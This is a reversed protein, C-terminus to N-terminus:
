SKPPVRAGSIDIVIAVSVPQTDVSFVVIPQERGKDIILFDDRTLGSVLRGERDVVTAAIRVVDIGGRFAEQAVAMSATVVCALATGVRMLGGRTLIGRMLGSRALRSRM